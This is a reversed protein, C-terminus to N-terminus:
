LNTTYFQSHIGFEDDTFEHQGNGYVLFINSAKMHERNFERNFKFDREECAFDKM